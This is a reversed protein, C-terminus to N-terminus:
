WWLVSKALSEIHVELALSYVRQKWRKTPPNVFRKKQAYFIAMGRVCPVALLALGPPARRVTAESAAPLAVAAAPHNLTPGTPVSTPRWVWRPVSLEPSRRRAVREGTSREGRKTNQCDQDCPLRRARLRFGCPLGSRPRHISAPGELHPSKV